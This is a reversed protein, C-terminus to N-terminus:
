GELESIEVQRSGTLVDRVLDVARKDNGGIHWEVAVNDDYERYEKWDYITAVVGSETDELCWERTVKDQYDGRVPEGLIESINNTTAMGPMYDQLHTGNINTERHNVRIMSCM